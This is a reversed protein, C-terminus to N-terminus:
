QATSSRGLMLSASLGALTSVGHVSSDSPMSRLLIECARPPPRYHAVLGVDSDERDTGAVAERLDEARELRLILYLEDPLPLRHCLGSRREGTAMELCHEEGCAPRLKGGVLQRGDALVSTRRHDHHARAAASCQQLLRELCAHGVDERQRLQRLVDDERDALGRMDTAAVRDRGLPLM